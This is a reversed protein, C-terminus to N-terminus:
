SGFAGPRPHDLVYVHASKWDIRRLRLPFQSPWHKVIVHPNRVAARSRNDAEVPAMILRHEHSEAGTFGALEERRLDLQELSEGDRATRYQVHTQPDVM